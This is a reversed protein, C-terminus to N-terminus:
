AYIVAEGPAPTYGFSGRALVKDRGGYQVVKQAQDGKALADVAEPDVLTRLAAECATLVSKYEPDTARDHKENPDTALDFLQPPYGVYHVYKYSDQRIMFSAGRSGVAHYESLITRSPVEGRAIRWLSHGPLATDELHPQVGVCELITPFCDVLTVPTSCVQGPPIDPGALILPVGASEEYMTFKGWIGRNGLAEGHDSTYTIRTRAALGTEDLTRLIRGINHDLYSCLGLYAAVAQRVTAEDCPEAFNFCQRFDEMAPHKPWSDPEGQVPWPMHEPRYLKFFQEPAIMPPHPCVLSVFLVWPRDGYRPAEERLWRVSAEVISHDYRTYSSEGPGAALVYGRNKKRLPLEDRILGLLDGMGDVVHLPLIEEDFGNPDSSDRYHLKGISTVRHGQALLRHGWGPVRGDYPHANDWFRIQHVYQGTALSARSPVCIPSSCYADTFRTGQAALRDLHPTHVAPHGYCGLVKRSHEDSMLFLLNTTQM